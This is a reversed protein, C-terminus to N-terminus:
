VRDISTIGVSGVPAIITRTFTYHLQYYKVFTIGKSITLDPPTFVTCMKFLLQNSFIQNLGQLGLTKKPFNSNRVNVHVGASVCQKTAVVYVQM